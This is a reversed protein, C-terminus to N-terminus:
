RVAVRQTCNVCVQLVFLDAWQKIEPTSTCNMLEDLVWCSLWIDSHRGETVCVLLLGTNLSFLDFTAQYNCYVQVQFFSESHGTDMEDVGDSKIVFIFPRAPASPSFFCYLSILIIQRLNSGLAHPCYFAWMVACGPFSTPASWVEINDSDLFVCVSLPFYSVLCGYFGLGLSTRM